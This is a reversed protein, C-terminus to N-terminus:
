SNQKETIITLADNITLMKEMSDNDIEIDYKDEVDLVVDVLNASNIELDEIFHTDHTLTEFATENQVYPKLIAKLEEYQNQDM